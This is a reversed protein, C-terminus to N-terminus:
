VSKQKWLGNSPRKTYHSAANLFASGETNPTLETVETKKLASVRKNREHWTNEGQPIDVARNGDVTLTYREWAEDLDNRQFVLSIGARVVKNKLQPMMHLDFFKAKVGLYDMAEAKNFGRKMRYM